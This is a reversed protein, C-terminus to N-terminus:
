NKTTISWPRTWNSKRRMLFRKCAVLYLAAQHAQILLPSHNSGSSLQDMRISCRRSWTVETTKLKLIRITPNSKMRMPIMKLYSKTEKKTKLTHTKSIRTKSKWVTKWIRSIMLPTSIRTKYILNTLPMRTMKLIHNMGWQAKKTKQDPQHKKIQLLVEVVELTEPAVLWSSERRSMPEKTLAKPRM